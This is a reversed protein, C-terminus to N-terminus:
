VATDGRQEFRQMKTGFAVFLTGLSGILHPILSTRSRLLPALQRRKEFEAQTKQLREFALFESGHKPEMGAKEKRSVTKM